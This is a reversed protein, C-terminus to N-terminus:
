IVGWSLSYDLYWRSAFHCPPGFGGPVVLRHTRDLGFARRPCNLFATAPCTSSQVERRSIKTVPVTIRPCLFVAAPSGKGPVELRPPSTDTGKGHVPNECGQVPKRFRAVLGDRPLRFPMANRTGQCISRCFHSVRVSRDVDSREVLAMSNARFQERRPRSNSFRVPVFGTQVAETVLTAMRRRALEVLPSNCRGM